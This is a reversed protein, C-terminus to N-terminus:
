IRIQRDLLKSDDVDSIQLIKEPPIKEKFIFGRDLECRAPDFDKKILRFTWVSLLEKVMNPFDGRQRIEDITFCFNAAKLAKEGTISVKIIKPCGYRKLAGKGKEEGMLNCVIKRDFESGYLLYEPFFNILGSKSFTLHVQGKREGNCAGEGFQYITEKLQDISCTKNGKIIQIIRNERKGPVLPLIGEHKLSILEQETLRTGHYGIVTSKKIWAIIDDIVQNTKDLGLSKVLESLSMDWYEIHAMSLKHCVENSMYKRMICNLQNEWSNLDDFDIMGDNGGQYNVIQM